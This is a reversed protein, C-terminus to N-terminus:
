HAHGPLVPAEGTLVTGHTSGADDGVAPQDAEVGHLLGLTGLDRTLHLVDDRLAMPAMGFAAALDDIVEVLPSSGDFCAWIITATPSLRHIAGNAEDYLVAEGDIEVTAVSTRPAPSFADDIDDPRVLGSM